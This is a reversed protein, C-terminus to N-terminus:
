TGGDKAPEPLSKAPRYVGDADQLLDLVQTRETPTLAKIAEAFIRGKEADSLKTLDPVNTIERRDSWDPFRNIMNLRYVAANMKRTTVTKTGDPETVTESVDHLGELGEREWWDRCRADALDRAAQFEPHAEAWNYLTQYTVGIHGAFALFSKGQSQYAILKECYEPDYETPRGGQNGGHKGM